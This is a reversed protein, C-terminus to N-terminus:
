TRQKKSRYYNKEPANKLTVVKRQVKKGSERPAHIACHHSCEGQVGVLTARTQNGSKTTGTRPRLPKELSSEEPKGREEYVLM